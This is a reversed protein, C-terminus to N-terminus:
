SSRGLAELAAEAYARVNARLDMDALGEKTVWRWEDTPDEPVVANTAATAFYVHIVHEHQDNVKHRALAVPPILDRYGEEHARFRQYGDYLTVDLGVEEKVERVAATVPDEDPEIHGGVSLWISDFKRHRRLLVRNGHVIFVEATFDIKEHIHPAM